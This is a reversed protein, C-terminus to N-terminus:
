DDAEEDDNHGDELLAVVRDLKADIGMIMAMLDTVEKNTIPPEPKKWLV